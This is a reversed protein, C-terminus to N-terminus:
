NSIPLAKLNLMEEENSLRVSKKQFGKVNVYKEVVQVVKEPPSSKSLFDNAGTLKARTRDILTDQVTLFVIPTDQFMTTKRLFYCVTYGNVKPMVLDLFILAPQHKELEPLGQFPDQIKLVEYGMPELIQELFDGVLPSDDICAITIPKSVTVAASVMQLKKMPSPWDPVTKFDILGQKEFYDLSRTTISLPQKRKLAIDWITNDGNFLYNEGWFSDVTVQNSLSVSNRITPALEPQLHSLGMEKWQKWLKKASSIVVPIESTSLLLSQAIQSSPPKLYHWSRTLNSQSVLAFFVEEAIAVLAAKAQSLNLQNQEIGKHLLKYEWLREDALKRGELQFNPLNQVIARYWRRTPHLGGCPYLLQGCLFYLQWEQSGSSLILKGTVQKQSVAALTNALKICGKTYASM